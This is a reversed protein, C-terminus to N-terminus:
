QLLGAEVDEPESVFAGFFRVIKGLGVNESLFNDFVEFGGEFL